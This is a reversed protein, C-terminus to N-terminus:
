SFTVVGTGATFVIYSDTGDTQVGGDTLGTRTSGITADATAWRLIVIGSGGAGSGANFGNGGGGGTNVTGATGVAGNTSGAGGGGAGGSAAPTSSGRGGGGGGARTVASGTISSSLGDGGSGALSGTSKNDEGVEGAGGGGASADNRTAGSGGNFGQNTSATGAANGITNAAGGAGSGGNRSNVSSGGGDSVINAFISDHGAYDGQAGGSGGAGAIGGAGVTVLYETVGDKFITLPTETSSLGGSNESAYSNRYGGAGGGGGYQRGGGGGGAIVLYSISFSPSDGLNAWAGNAYIQGKNVTSNYIMDGNAVGSLADRETTTYNKLRIPDSLSINNGSRKTIQNVKLESM